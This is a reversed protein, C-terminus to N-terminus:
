PNDETFRQTLEDYELDLRDALLQRAVTLADIDAASMRGDSNAIDDLARLAQTMAIRDATTSIDAM